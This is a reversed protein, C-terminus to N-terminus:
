FDFQASVKAFRAPLVLTPTLYRTGYTQNYTQIASSNTVNYVDVGVQTRTRGFRLIKAVRIDLQNIRDGYLEGPQVINVTTNAANGSLPRGLTLAALASPVNFNAALQTGPKSQLTASVQVDIKPVTYAGAGRVQTLFPQEIDCWESSLWSAANAVLFSTAGFLAEPVKAIVECNNTSTRGTSVGAQIMIGNTTRANVNIDLGNWHETQKGYNKALTTLNDTLGFKAPVVDYFGGIVTSGGDPLRSDSPVPVSFATYDAASVARNDVVTFNGYVRRFYGVEVSVRPLM